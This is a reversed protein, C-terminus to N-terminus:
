KSLPPSFFGMILAAPDKSKSRRAACVGGTGYFMNIFAYEKPILFNPRIPSGLDLWSRIWRMQQLTPRLVPTSSSLTPRPVPEPLSRSLLLIIFGTSWFFFLFFFRVQHFSSEGDDTRDINNDEDLPSQPPMLGIM